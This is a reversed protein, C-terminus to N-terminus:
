QKLDLGVKEKADKVLYDMQKQLNIKDNLEKILVIILILILIGFTLFSQLYMKATLFAGLLASFLISVFVIVKNEMDRNVSNILDGIRNVGAIYNLKKEKNVDSLNIERLNTIPKTRCLRKNIWLPLEDLYSYLRKFLKSRIFIITLLAMFMFPEYSVFFNLHLTSCLPLPNGTLNDTGCFYNGFIEGLIIVLLILGWLKQKTQRYGGWSFWSWFLISFIIGGWIFNLSGKGSLIMTQQPLKLFPVLPHSIWHSVVIKSWGDGLMLNNLLGFIIHGLEHIYFSLFFLVLSFYAFIIVIGIKNLSRSIKEQTERLM